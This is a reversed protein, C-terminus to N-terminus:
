FNSNPLEYADRALFVTTYTSGDDAESNQTTMRPLISGLKMVLLPTFEMVAHNSSQLLVRCINTRCDVDMLNLEALNKDDFIEYIRETTVVSWEPDIKEQQLTQEIASVKAEFAEQKQELEEHVMNEPNNMEGVESYVNQYSLLELHGNLTQMQKELNMVQSRLNNVQQYLHSINQQPVKIGRNQDTLDLAVSKDEVNEVQASLQVDTKIDLPEVYFWGIALALFVLTLLYVPNKM